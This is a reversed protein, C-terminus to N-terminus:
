SSIRSCSTEAHHWRDETGVEGASRRSCDRSATSSAPWRVPWRFWRWSPWSTSSTPWGGWGPRPRTNASFSPRTGGMESGRVGVRERLSLPAIGRLWVDDSADFHIKGPPLKGLDFKEVMERLEITTVDGMGCWRAMLGLMRGTSVGMERYRSLRTDGHRKALRRGDEGVVLPLHLYQPIQEPLGLARYLLIQRPTSDLLDDGRVVHTVGMAADDVVVALQYSPTGDAKAIVFDGLDSANIAMSGVFLDEWGM